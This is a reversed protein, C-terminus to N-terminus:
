GTPKHIQAGDTVIASLLLCPACDHGFGRIDDDEEGVLLAPIGGAHMAVREVDRGVKVPQCPGPGVDM